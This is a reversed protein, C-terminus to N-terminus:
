KIFINDEEGAVIAYRQIFDEKGRGWKDKSVVWGSYGGNEGLFYGGGCTYKQRHEHRGTNEALHATGQFNAAYKRMESFLDRKHSSFGLIVTRTKRYGYYDTMSDSEDERFEAIIVAKVWDPMIKRLRERGAIMLMNDREKMIAAEREREASYNKVTM